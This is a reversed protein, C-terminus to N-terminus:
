LYSCHTIIPVSLFLFLIANNSNLREFSCVNNITCEITQVIFTVNPAEEFPLSDANIVGQCYSNRDIECQLLTVVGSEGLFYCNAQNNRIICNYVLTNGNLSYILSKSINLDNNVIHSRYINVQSNKLLFGWAKVCSNNVFYCNIILEQVMYCHFCVEAFCQCFSRNTDRFSLLGNDFIDISSSASIINKINHVTSMAVIKPGDFIIRMYAGTYDCSVNSIDMKYSVFKQSAGMFIAGGGQPSANTKSVSNITSYSLSLNISQSDVNIIRDNYNRFLSHSIDLNNAHM